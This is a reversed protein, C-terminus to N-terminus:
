VEKGQQINNHYYPPENQGEPQLMEPPIQGVSSPLNRELMDVESSPNLDSVHLDDADLTTKFISEHLAKDM